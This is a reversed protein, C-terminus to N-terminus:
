NKLVPEAAAPGERLLRSLDRVKQAYLPDNVLNVQELPDRTINYLERAVPADGEGPWSTDRRWESYRFDKTRVMRGLGHIPIMSFAAQKWPRDPNDLLPVMSLGEFLPDKELGWFDCLTPLIDVIEVIEDCAKGNSAAGPVHVLLPVRTSQEFLSFKSWMGHEGLHFGHDAVFIVITNDAEGTQELGQLIMGIQADLYSACAYYAALAEREREPTKKFQPHFGNFVDYNNGFRKAVMPIDVDKDPTATSLTLEAPDYMDVYKKPALLPTHTAYLGVAFFFPDSSAALEQLIKVSRRAIRGDEMAEEPLNSDGLMEASYQQFPKRLEWTDPEGSAKRQEREEFLEHLRTRHPEALYFVEQEAWVPGGEGAPVVASVGGFDSPEDYDHTYELRDFGRVFRESENWKHVIKGITATPGGRSKLIAAMSPAGDPITEDPHDGNGYVRTSDPRLGTTLSARSPNCVPAQCYARDFRLSRGAFADLFPTKVEPNGNYGLAFPSWDEAVILLINMDETVPLDVAQKGAELSPGLLIGATTMTLLLTRTFKMTLLMSPFKM